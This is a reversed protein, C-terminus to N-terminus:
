REASDTTTPQCASTGCDSGATREFRDRSLDDALAHVDTDDRPDQRAIVPVGVCVQREERGHRTAGM